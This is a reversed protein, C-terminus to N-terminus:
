PDSHDDDSWITREISINLLKIKNRLSGRTIGLIRATQVQNGNTHRLVRVLVECEMLTLAEAYLNDSGADIRDHVFQDWDFTASGRTTPSSSTVEVGAPLAEPSLVPGKMQLISQKLSSQLERINGPWPYRRLIEISKPDISHVPRDLENSFRRVFHEILLPIDEERDRLAPLRIPFVNLRFFLDSRFKGESVAKELDVNTAAILRVDTKITEGGGVREFSQDQLLRLIKTQTLPSMDGVEDLFITGGSCQEFKGIRQRDAGTFAGKEHGFLESELLNEPIAACNIALFPKQSRRSHQYIARAVLEKGTGSEGLLLVTVDQEAVRGIAKYVEQMASCRGLLIDAKGTTPADEPMVAPVNMLRSTESARTVLERLLPLELPKLLYDYAGRKIAEIALDTTGHGTVLIIPIRPYKRHIENFADLGKTDPLHVDLIVVQPRIETLLHLGEAVTSATHLTFEPSRFARRFAHLISEEDDIVLLTDM